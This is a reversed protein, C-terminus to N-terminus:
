SSIGKNSSESKGISKLSPFDKQLGEVVLQTIREPQKFDKLRHKGLDILSVDAPLCNEVLTKTTETLLVQGGYGLNAVRSARHVDIGVYGDEKVWPEGTHLGMRVRVVIGKPWQFELLKKQGDIAADLADSAKSFAFFFEEGRADVECGRKENFSNRLMERQKYLIQPYEDQLNQLLKTSGEIDTFLFTVTGGPLGRLPYKKPLEQIHPYEVSLGEINM